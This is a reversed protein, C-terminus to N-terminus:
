GWKAQSNYTLRLNPQMGNTGPPVDIPFQYTAAGTFLSLREELNPKSPQQGSQAFASDAPVLMPLALSLVSFVSFPRRGLCLSITM